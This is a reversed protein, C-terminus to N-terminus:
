SMKEEIEVGAIINKLYDNTVDAVQTEGKINVIDYGGDENAKLRAGPGFNEALAADLRAKMDGSLDKDFFDVEALEKQIQSDYIKGLSGDIINAGM